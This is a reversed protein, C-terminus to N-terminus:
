LREEITNNINSNILEEAKYIAFKIAERDSSGHAKFLPKNLGLFIGAGVKKYDYKDKIKKLSKKLLLAGIKSFFSSTVATKIESFLVSAAGETSKIMMNGSFGDAVIVDAKGTLFDRPEINGCFNINPNNKLLQYVEKTRIDGKGEEAGINVLYVKPNKKNLYKEAVVSGMVAFQEQMEPKTDVVAGSDVLITQSGSRTPVLTALTARKVNKLRKTIFIGGALLGGTSGASLFGDGEENLKELGLVLSANKKRRLSRVPDDHNEIFENTDIFEVRSHDINRKNIIRQANEKPGVLIFNLKTKEFSDCVGNVVEEVGLDAGMLDVVLKM